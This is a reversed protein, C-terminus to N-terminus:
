KRKSLKVTKDMMNGDREVTVTLIDNPKTKLMIYVIDTTNDIKVGDVYMIIDGAIIGGLEASSGEYVEDVMVGGNYTVSNRNLVPKMNHIVAGFSSKEIKKNEMLERAVYLVIDAPTIYSYGIYYGASGSYLATAVGVFKGNTDFIPGGSNGKNIVVDSIVYKVPDHKILKNFGSVVGSTLSKGMRLPYGISYIEDGLSLSLNSNKLDVFPLNEADIKLLAVDFDPAAYIENVIYNVKDDFSITMFYLEPMNSNIYNDVVHSNTIIDGDPSVSFGTGVHISQNIDVKSTFRINGVTESLSQLSQAASGMSISFLMVFFFSYIKNVECNTM